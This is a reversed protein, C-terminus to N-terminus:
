AENPVGLAMEETSDEWRSSADANWSYASILGFAGSQPPRNLRSIGDTFDRILLVSDSIDRLFKKSRPPM